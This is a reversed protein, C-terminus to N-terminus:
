CSVALIISNIIALVLSILMVYRFIYLFYHMGKQNEVACVCKTSDLDGVYTYLCWFNILSAVMLFVKFLRLLMNNNYKDSVFFMITAMGIVVVSYYKIFDHRWDRICGCLKNELKIVYMLVLLNFIITIMGSTGNGERSKVKLLDGLTKCSSM